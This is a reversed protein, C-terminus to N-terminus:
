KLALDVVVPRHDSALTVPVLALRVRFLSNVGPDFVGDNVCTITVVMRPKRQSAFMNTATCCV